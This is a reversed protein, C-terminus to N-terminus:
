RLASVRNLPKRNAPHWFCTAVALLGSVFYVGAVLSRMRVWADAGGFWDAWLLGSYMLLLWGLAAGSIGAFVLLLDVLRFPKPETKM